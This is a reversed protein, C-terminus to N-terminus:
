ERIKMLALAQAFDYQKVAREFPGFHEAGLISRLAAIEADLYDGAESDDNALFERMKGSVEAAKEADV